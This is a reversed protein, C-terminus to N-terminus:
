HTTRCVWKDLPLSGVFGDDEEDNVAAEKTGEEGDLLDQAFSAQDPRQYKVIEWAQWGLQQKITPNSFHSLLSYSVLGFAFILLLVLPPLSLRLFPWRTRKLDPSISAPERFGAQSRSRSRFM